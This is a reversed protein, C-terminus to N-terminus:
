HNCFHVSVHVGGGAWLKADPHKGLYCGEYENGELLTVNGILAVRPLSDPSDSPGSAQVTFTAAHTPSSLINHSNLSIYFFLFTLSGNNYCPAYYEMLAFPQGKFKLPTDARHSPHIYFNSYAYRRSHYPKLSVDLSPHRYLGWRGSKECSSSHFGRPLSDNDLSIVVRSCLFSGADQVTEGRVFPSLLLLSVFSSWFITLSKMELSSLPSSSLSTVIKDGKIKDSIM